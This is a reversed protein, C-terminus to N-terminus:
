EVEAVLSSLLTSIPVALILGVSGIITRIIEESIIESNLVYSVPQPNNLFLLLLPMSAGAYVLVLTNILSTIHDRGVAMAQKYLEVSTLEKNALKLQNVISAQSVTIDDLIGLFGIIIGSLLIGRLNVNEKYISLFLAEESSRGTINSGNVSLWAFVSTIILTIITSVIATHTKKNFGHSLYFNVPVILFCAMVTIFVPSKGDLINPLVFKFIVLFSFAMGVISYVGHKKGILVALIFFIIFIWILAGLRNHDTIYYQTLDQSQTAQLFVKDGPEYTLDQNTLLSPQTTIQEGTDLKVSYQIQSTDIQVRELVQGKYIEQAFTTKSILPILLTIILIKTLHIIKQM